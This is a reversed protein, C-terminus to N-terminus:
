ANVKENHFPIFQLVLMTSILICFIIFWYKKITELFNINDKVLSKPAKKFKQGPAIDKKAGGAAPPSEKKQSVPPDLSPSPRPQPPLSPKPVLNNNAKRERLRQKLDRLDIDEMIKKDREFFSLLYNIRKVTTLIYADAMPWGEKIYEASRKDQGNVVWSVQAKKFEDTKLEKPLSKWVSVLLEEYEDYIPDNEKLKLSEEDNLALALSSSFLTIVLVAWAGALSLWILRRLPGQSKLLFM